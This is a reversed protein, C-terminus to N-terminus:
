PRLSVFRPKGACAPISGTEVRVVRAHLPSGRVRPSPGWRFSVSSSTRAAEGCVRPHVAAADPPDGESRPKGACAPISGLPFVQRAVELLSGRVRPSPGQRGLEPRPHLIAEGCVRPHVTTSRGSANRSTSIAGGCVRPHVGGTSRGPQRYAGVPSGRVRPSPGLQDCSSSLHDPHEPSGRVRPSPGEHFTGMGFILVAEGSVRPHVWPHCALAWSQEPKGACAPISGGAAIQDLHVTEFAGGCVRPHVGASRELSRSCAVRLSGRVRPSPGPSFPVALAPDSVM